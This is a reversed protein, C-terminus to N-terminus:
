PQKQLSLSVFGQTGTAVVLDTVEADGALQLPAITVLGSADSTATSIQASEDPPVPCRGRDPCPGQWADITQHIEVVAGAVANGTTDTVRLVVPALVSEAGVSQGAGSVVEIRLAAPDVGQAVITACVVTWACVSATANEGAAL